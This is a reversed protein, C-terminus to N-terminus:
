CTKGKVARLIDNECVRSGPQKIVLAMPWNNENVPIGTVVVDSVGPVNAVVAEIEEPSIQFFTFCLIFLTDIHITVNGIKPLSTSVWKVRNLM